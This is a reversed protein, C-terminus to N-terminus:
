RIKQRIRYAIFKQSGVIEFSLPTFDFINRSKNYEPQLLELLVSRICIEQWEQKGEKSIEIVEEMAGMFGIQAVLILLM